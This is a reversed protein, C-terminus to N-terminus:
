RKHSRTVTGDASVHYGSRQAWNDLANRVLTGHNAYLSNLLDSNVVRWSASQADDRGQLAVRAGQSPSLHLHFADTEMWANDTNRPDAVYGKYVTPARSFNLKASVEEGFERAVTSSQREGRDVMGGPLAIEGGRARVITALELQGKANVRTVIADAAQNAGWKGLVGRGTVGTKGWPNKPRGSRDIKVPGEYSTFKGGPRMAMAARPNAPDAWYARPNAGPPMKSIDAALVTPGTYSQPHALDRTTIGARQYEPDIPLNANIRAHAASVGSQYPIRSGAAVRPRGGSTSM